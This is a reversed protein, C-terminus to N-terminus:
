DSVENNVELCDESKKNLLQKANHSAKSHKNYASHQTLNSPQTTM